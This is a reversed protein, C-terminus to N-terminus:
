LINTRAVEVSPNLIHDTDCFLCVNKFIWNQFTTFALSEIEQGRFSDVNM